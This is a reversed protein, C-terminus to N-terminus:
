ATVAGNAAFFSAQDAVLANASISFGEPKGGGTTDAGLPNHLTVMDTMANIGTVAFMHNPMLNNFVEIDSTGLLVDNGAALSKELTGLLGTLASASEGHLSYTSTSQGTILSMGEGLGATLAYYQDQASTYELGTVVGSQESLQALAKEVLPVWLSSTSNAFEMTSGDPQEAGGAYTSLENNVTVYDSHGDVQFDVSYTGNGNATIMNEILTPDLMATEGLAALFWCDGIRGQNVDNMEPGASTFLPLTYAQYSTAVGIESPTPAVGPMDTGLFWKGILKRFQARTSTASLDGLATAGDAGGNWEANASNGLVVNDFMAQVYASTRIGGAVNLDDAVAQLEGFVAASMPSAAADRLVVLAGHYGLRGGSEHAIADALIPNTSTTTM